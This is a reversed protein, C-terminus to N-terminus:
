FRLFHHWIQLNRKSFFIFVVMSNRHKFLKSNSIPYELSFSYILILIVAKSYVEIRKKAHVRLHNTGCLIMLLRTCRRRLFVQKTLLQPNTFTHQDKILKLSCNPKMYFFFIVYVGESKSSFFLNNFNCKM